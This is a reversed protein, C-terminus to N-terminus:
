SGGAPLERWRARLFVTLEEWAEDGSCILDAGLDYRSALEDLKEVAERTTARVALDAVQQATPPTMPQAEAAQDTLPVPATIAKPPEGPAPPLQAMIGGRELAGSAVERFTSTIDLVPVSYKRLEGRVLREQPELYLRAPLFVKRDRALMMIDGQDGTWMASYISGTDLRWVGLGPLDPIIVNIRTVRRCAEPPNKKSLAERALACRMAEDADDPDAAHPCLCPGGSIQERQSDCRREFGYGPKWMEYWSSVVADRPPVTVLIETAKTLVQWERRGGEDWPQVDGEFRAAAAEIQPRSPSTFRFADLRVPRTKQQGSRTKGEIAIRQGTRIRGTQHSARQVDLLPM